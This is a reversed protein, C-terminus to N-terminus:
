SWSPRCPAAYSLQHPPTPTPTTWSWTSGPSVKNKLILHEQLTGFPDCFAFLTKKSLPKREYKAVM